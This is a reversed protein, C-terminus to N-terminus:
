RRCVQPHTHTEPRPVLGSTDCGALSRPPSPRGALSRPLELRPRQALVLAFLGLLGGAPCFIAKNATAFDISRYSQFAEAKKQRCVGPLSEGV